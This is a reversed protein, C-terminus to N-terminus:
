KGEDDSEDDLEDEEHEECCPDCYFTRGQFFCLGCRANIIRM